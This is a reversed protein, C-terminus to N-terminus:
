GSVIRFSDEDFHQTSFEFLETDRIAVMQHATGPPVHFNDGPSLITSDCFSKYYGTELYYRELAQLDESYYIKILGRQIYFVEDKREHYHLSCQKDKVFYLLKGCYEPKNVIWKEFGWNKPVLKIEPQHRIM